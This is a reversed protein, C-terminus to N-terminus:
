RSLDWSSKPRAGAGRTNTVASFVQL